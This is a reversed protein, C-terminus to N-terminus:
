WLTTNSHLKKTVVKSLYNPAPNRQLTMLRDPLMAWSYVKMKKNGKIGYQKHAQMVPEHARAYNIISHNLLPISSFLL